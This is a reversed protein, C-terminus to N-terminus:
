AMVAVPQQEAAAERLLRTAMNTHVISMQARTLANVRPM